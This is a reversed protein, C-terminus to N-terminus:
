VHCPVCHYHRFVEPEAIGRRILGFSSRPLGFITKFGNSQDPRSLSNFFFVCDLKTFSTVSRINLVTVNELNTIQITYQLCNPCFGSKRNFIAIKAECKGVYSFFCMCVFVFSFVGYVFDTIRDGTSHLHCM